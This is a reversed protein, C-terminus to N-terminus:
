KTRRRLIYSCFTAWHEQPYSAKNSVEIERGNQMIAGKRAPIPENWAPSYWIPTCESKVPRLEVYQLLILQEMFAGIRGWARGVWIHSSFHSCLNNNFELWLERWAKWFHFRFIKCSRSREDVMRWTNEGVVECWNSSERGWSNKQM